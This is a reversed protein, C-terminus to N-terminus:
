TSLEAEGTHRAAINALNFKLNNLKFQLYTGTENGNEKNSDLSVQKKKQNVARIMEEKVREEWTGELECLRSELYYAEWTGKLEISGAYLKVVSFQTRLLFLVPHSRIPTRSSFTCCCRYPASASDAHIARVPVLGRLSPERTRASCSGCSCGADARSVAGPVQHLRSPRPHTTRCYARPCVVHSSSSPSCRAQASAALPLLTSRPHPLSLSPSRPHPYISLFHMSSAGAPARARAQPSDRTSEELLSIGANDLSSGACQRQRQRQPSSSSASKDATLPRAGTM